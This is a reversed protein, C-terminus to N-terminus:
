ELLNFFWVILLKKESAVTKITWRGMFKVIAFFLFVWKVLILMRWFSWWVTKQHRHKQLENFAVIQSFYNFSKRKQYVQFSVLLCFVICHNIAHLVEFLMKLQFIKEIM